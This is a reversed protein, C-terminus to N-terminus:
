FVGLAETPDAMNLAEINIESFEERKIMVSYLYENNIIGIKRNNHYGESNTRGSM